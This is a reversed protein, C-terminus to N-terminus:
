EDQEPWPNQHAMEADREIFDHDRHRLFIGARFHQAKGWGAFTWRQVIAIDDHPIRERSDFIDGFAMWIHWDPRPRPRRKRPSSGIFIRRSTVESSTGIDGTKFLSKPLGAPLKTLSAGEEEAIKRRGVRHERRHDITQM